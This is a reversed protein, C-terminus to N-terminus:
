EYVALVRNMLELKKEVADYYMKNSKINMIASNYNVPGKCKYIEGGNSQDILLDICKMKRRPVGLIEINGILKIFNKSMDADIGKESIVTNDKSRYVTEEKSQYRKKGGTYNIFLNATNIIPGSDQNIRVNGNLLITESDTNMEMGQAFITENEGLYKVDKTSKILDDNTFINLSETELVHSLGNKSEIRVTGILSIQGSKFGLAFNSSIILNEKLNENFTKVKVVELQVPSNKYSKYTDAEIIHLLVQDKSYEKIIFNEIKELYPDSSLEESDNILKETSKPFLSIKLINDQFIWLIVGLAIIFTIISQIKQTKFVAM